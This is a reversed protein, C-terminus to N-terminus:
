LYAYIQRWKLRSPLKLIVGHTEQKMGAKSSCQDRCDKNFWFVFLYESLKLATFQKFLGLSPFLCVSCDANGLKKPFPPCIQHSSPMHSLSSWKTNPLSSSFSDELFLELVLAVHLGHLCLYLTNAWIHVLNLQLSFIFVQFKKTLICHKFVQFIRTSNHPYWGVNKAKLIFEWIQLLQSSSTFVESKPTVNPM